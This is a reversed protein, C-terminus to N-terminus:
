QIKQHELAVRDDQYLHDSFFPFNGIKSTGTVIPFVHYSYIGLLRNFETGFYGRNHDIGCIIKLSCNLGIKKLGVKLNPVNSFM